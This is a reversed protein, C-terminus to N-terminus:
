YQHDPGGISLEFREQFNWSNDETIPLGNKTYFTEVIRMTPALSSGTSALGPTSGDLRAQAQKQNEDPLNNPNAWIVEPNWKATISNRINLKLNTEDSVLSAGANNERYYYLKHNNAHAATIAAYVAEAAIRWKENDYVPNFLAVNNKDKFNAYDSNGNFLPSAATILVKAKMALAIPKTIRG